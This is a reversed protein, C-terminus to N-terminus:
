HLGAALRDQAPPAVTGRRRGSVNSSDPVSDIHIETPDVDTSRNLTKLQQEIQKLARWEDRLDASLWLVSGVGALLLGFLGASVVYPIQQTTLVADSVKFWGIFLSIVGAAVLTVAAVRDLQIRLWAKMNM